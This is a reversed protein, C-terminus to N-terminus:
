NEYKLHSLSLEFNKNKIYHGDYDYELIADFKELLKNFEEIFNEETKEEDSYNYDVTLKSTSLNTPISLIGPYEEAIKKYENANKM